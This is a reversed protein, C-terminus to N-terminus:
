ATARLWGSAILSLSMWGAAYVFAVSPSFASWILGVAASSVLAGGSQIAGLLGFGSGRLHEPIAQAFLTSEATEALGIGSGALVFFVLLLPWSHFPLAFGIYALTFLLAGAAFAARPGAKDIWHGGAYAVGAGFLNHAAYILVAVSTAATLSRGGHQLLHTARLILLTTACNGLEFFVIPILPRGIGAGRLARLELRARRRATAGANRAETAAFTIAIAAFAGPVIALLMTTRIGILGVLLAALLPGAVAGLNDGAREFGFARGYAEEPAISTLLADRAPGRVGRAAWALARLAGAQWVATTLGVASTAVATVVYGGSALRVRRTEDNALSGGLLKMVGVLADSIGEIVGLAGASARLTVTLFSPLVATTIEHGADSFFSAAGVSFVGRTLWRRPPAETASGDEHTTTLQAASGTTAAV